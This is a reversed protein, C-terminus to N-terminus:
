NLKKDVEQGPIEQLLRSVESSDSYDRNLCTASLRARLSENGIIGALGAACEEPDLPVIIGDAGNELQSGSTPYATIVVPRGLM